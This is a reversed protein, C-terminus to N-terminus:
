HALAFQLPSNEDGIRSGYFVVHSRKTAPIGTAIRVRTEHESKWRKLLEASYKEGKKDDDILKHCDHCALMLNAVDNLGSKNFTFPGWGRPGDKSFSYIHAMEAVNVPEQTVGSKYLLRNCDSFECRAAARGWLEREVERKIKRTVDTARAM